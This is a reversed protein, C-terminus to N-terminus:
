VDKGLFIFTDFFSHTLQKIDLQTNVPALCVNLEYEM